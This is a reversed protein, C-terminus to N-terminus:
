ENYQQKDTIFESADYFCIKGTDLAIGAKIKAGNESDSRKKYVTWLFGGDEYADYLEINKCGQSYVFKDCLRLAEETTLVPAEPAIALSYRLLYGGYKTIDIFANGCIFSYVEPKTRNNMNLRLSMGLGIIGVAKDRAEGESIEQAGKLMPFEAPENEGSLLLSDNALPLSLRLTPILASADRYASGSVSSALVDGICCLRNYLAAAYSRVLVMDDSDPQASAAAILFKELSVATDGDLALLTVATDAARIHPTLEEGDAIGRVADGLIDIGRRLMDTRASEAYTHRVEALPCAIFSIVIAACLYTILRIVRRSPSNKFFDKM